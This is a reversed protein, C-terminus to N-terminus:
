RRLRAVEAIVREKLNRDLPGAIAAELDRPFGEITKAAGTFARVRFHNEGTLEMYSAIQELARAVGTRDMVAM